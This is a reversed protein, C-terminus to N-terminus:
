GGQECVAVKYRDITERANCPNIGRACAGGCEFELAELLPAVLKEHITWASDFGEKWSVRAGCKLNDCEKRFHLDPPCMDNRIRKVKDSM